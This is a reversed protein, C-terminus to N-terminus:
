VWPFEGPKRFLINVLARLRHAHDDKGAVFAQGALEQLKREIEAYADAKARDYANNVRQADALQTATYGAHWAATAIERSYPDCYNPHRSIWTEFEISSNTDIPRSALAANWVQEASDKSLYHRSPSSSWWTEFEISSNTESM